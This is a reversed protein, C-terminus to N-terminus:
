GAPYVRDLINWAVRYGESDSAGWAQKSKLLQDLEKWNFELRTPCAAILGEMGRNLDEAAMDREQDQELTEGNYLHWEDADVQLRVSPGKLLTVKM